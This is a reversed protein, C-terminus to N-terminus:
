NGKSISNLNQTGSRCTYAKGNAMTGDRSTCVENFVIHTAGMEKASEM